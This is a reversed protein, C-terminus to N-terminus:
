WDGLGRRGLRRGPSTCRVPSRFWGWGAAVEVQGVGDGVCACAGVAGGDAGFGGLDDCPCGGEVLAEDVFGDAPCFGLDFWGDEWSGYGGDDAGFGGVVADAEWCEM